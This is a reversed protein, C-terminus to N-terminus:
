GLYFTFGYRLYLPVSNWIKPITMNPNDIFDYMLTISYYARQGLSGCYGGGLMFVPFNIRKGPASTYNETNLIDFESQLLIFDIPRYRLFVGGGFTHESIIAGGLNVRVFQYIGTIGGSFDKYIDYGLIPAAYIYNVNGFRMSLDGGTYAHQKIEFWNLKPEKPVSDNKVDEVDYQGFCLGASFLLFISLSFKM